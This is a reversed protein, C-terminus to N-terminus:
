PFSLFFVVSPVEQKVVHFYISRFRQLMIYGFTNGPRECKKIASKWTAFLYKLTPYLEETLSLVNKRRRSQM